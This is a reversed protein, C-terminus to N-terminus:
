TVEFFANVLSMAVPEATDNEILLRHALTVVFLTVLRHSELDTDVVPPTGTGLRNENAPAYAGALYGTAHAYSSEERWARFLGANKVDTSHAAAAFKRAQDKIRKNKTENLVFANMDTFDVTSEWGMDRMHQFTKVTQEREQELMADIAGARDVPALDHLWHLRLAIEAFMRRNPAAAPAMNAKTLTAIVLSQEFCARLWGVIFQNTRSLPVKSLDVALVREASQKAYQANM